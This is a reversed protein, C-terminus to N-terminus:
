DEVRHFLADRVLLPIQPKAVGLSFVDPEGVRVVIGVRREELREDIPEIPVRVHPESEALRPGDILAAIFQITPKIHSLKAILAGM